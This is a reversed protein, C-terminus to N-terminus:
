LKEDLPNHYNHTLKRANKKDYNKTMQNITTKLLSEYTKNDYNKMPPTITIKLLNEYM